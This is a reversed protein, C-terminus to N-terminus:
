PPTESTGPPLESTGLPIESRSRLRGSRSRQRKKRCLPQGRRAEATPASRQTARPRPPAPMLRHWIWCRQIDRGTLVYTLANDNSINLEFASRSGPRGALLFEDGPRIPTSGAPVAREDGNDRAICLAECHLYEYRNAHSRLLQDLVITEGHMLRRYLAPARSLNIRESWVEPPM